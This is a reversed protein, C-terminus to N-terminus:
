RRGGLCTSGRAFGRLAPLLNGTDDGEALRARGGGSLRAPAISPNAFPGNVRVPVDLALAGTTAGDSAIVVDVRKRFLEFTGRGVITGAASRVRLPSVTGAGARVDIVALLCSIPSMGKATRFLTRADTSAMEVIDRSIAGGKMALVASIRAGRVAKNLTAGEAIVQARGDVRGDLPLKGLDLLERLGQVGVGSVEVEATLRGAQTERRAVADVKGTAQVTGGLYGASFASVAIENATRAGTVRVNALSLGSYALEEAALTMDLLVGPTGGVALSVDTEETKQKGALADFNLRGFSLEASVADPKGESGEVLRLSAGSLVSDAITGRMDTWSWRAGERELGSALDVAVAPGEAVGAVHALTDLQSAKLTLRGRAGDINLPDTMTGDFRLVTGDATLTIDTPFPDAIRRLAAYTGLAAGITLAVGNYSGPGAIRVGADGAQLTVGDFDTRFPTGSSGRVVVTGVVRADQVTPFHQRQQAPTEANGGRGFRWNRGGDATHELLLDLGNVALGRVIIPGRVLSWADVEAYVGAVVMMDARSGGPANALTVHEAEISVWRGPKLRLAGFTVTRGLSASTWRGAVGAWDGQGLVVFEAIAATLLVGFSGAAFWAALRWRRGPHPRREAEPRQDAADQEM